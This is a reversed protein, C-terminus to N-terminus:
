NGNPKQDLSIRRNRQAAHRHKTTSGSTHRCTGGYVCVIDRDRMGHEGSMRNHFREFRTLRLPVVPCLFSKACGTYRVRRHRSESTYYNSNVHSCDTKIYDRKLIINLIIRFICIRMQLKQSILLLMYIYINYEEM